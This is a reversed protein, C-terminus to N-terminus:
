IDILLQKHAQSVTFEVVAEIKTGPLVIYTHRSEKWDTAVYFISQIFVSVGGM